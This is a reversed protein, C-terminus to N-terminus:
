WFGFHFSARRAIASVFVLGHHKTKLVARSQDGILFVILGGPM